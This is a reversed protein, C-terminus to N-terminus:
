KRSQIEQIKKNLEDDIKNIQIDEM